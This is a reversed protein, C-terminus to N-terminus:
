DINQLFLYYENIAECLLLMTKKTCDELHLLGSKGEFEILIGKPGIESVKDGYETIPCIFGHQFVITNTGLHDRLTKLLTKKDMAYRFKLLKKNFSDISEKVKFLLIDMGCVTYNDQGNEDTGIPYKAYVSDTLVLGREKSCEVGTVLMIDDVGNHNNVNYCKPELIDYNLSLKELKNRVMLSYIERICAGYAKRYNQAIDLKKM